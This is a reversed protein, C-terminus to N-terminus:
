TNTKIAWRTRPFKNLTWSPRSPWTRPRAHQTAKVGLRLNDDM